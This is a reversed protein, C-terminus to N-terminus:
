KAFVITYEEQILSLPRGAMDSINTFRCPLGNAELVDPGDMLHFHLHPAGSFGVNGLKGLVDGQQVFMGKQVTVSNQIMHGYFSYENHDHRIVVYNGCLLPAEGFQECIKVWDSEPDESPFARWDATNYCDVVQGDGIAIIDQGFCLADESKMSGNWEYKCESNLLGLDIAFEMSAPAPIRHAGLCDYNGHVQWGGGKVPFVYDNQTHYNVVSVTAHESKEDGNQRYHVAIGLLDVASGSLVSFHEKLITTDEGPLLICNEKSNEVRLALTEGSYVVKKVPKSTSFVEFELKILEAPYETNNIFKVKRLLFNSIRFSGSDVVPNMIFNSTLIILSM